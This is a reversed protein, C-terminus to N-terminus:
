FIDNLASGFCEPCLVNTGKHQVSKPDSKGCKRCKPAIVIDDDPCKRDCMEDHLKRAWVPIKKEIQKM